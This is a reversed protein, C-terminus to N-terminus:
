PSSPLRPRAFRPTAVRHSILGERDCGQNQSCSEGERERVQVFDLLPRKDDVRRGGEPIQELREDDGPKVRRGARVDGEDVHARALLVVPKPHRAAMGLGIQEEVRGREVQFFSKVGAMEQRELDRPACRDRRIEHTAAHGSPVQPVRERPTRERLHVVGLETGGWIERGEVRRESKWMREQTVIADVGDQEELIDRDRGPGFGQGVRDDLRGIRARIDEADDVSREVDRQAVFADCQEVQLLARPDPEIEGEEPPLAEEDGDHERRADDLAMRIRHRHVEDIEQVTVLNLRVDTPEVEARDQRSKGIRRAANRERHGSLPDEVVVPGLPSGGPGRQRLVDDPSSRSERASPIQMLHGKRRVASSRVMQVTMTQNRNPRNTSPGNAVTKAKLKVDDTSLPVPVKVSFHYPWSKEWGPRYPGSMRLKSIATMTTTKWNTNPVSM